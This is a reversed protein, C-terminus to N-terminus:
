RIFLAGLLFVSLPFRRHETEAGEKSRKKHRWLVVMGRWKYTGQRVNQRKSIGHNQCILFVTYSACYLVSFILSIASNLSLFHLFTSKGSFQDGTIDIIIYKDVMLWAHSQGNGDPKGWYTGCVYDTKIGKDLLYQALLDSTDGCCARPFRRYISDNDFEGAELALDIARRFQTAFQKIEKM